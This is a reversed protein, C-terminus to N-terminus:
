RFRTRSNENKATSDHTHILGSGQNDANLVTIIQVISCDANVLYQPRNCLITRESVYMSTPVNQPPLTHRLLGQFTTQNECMM